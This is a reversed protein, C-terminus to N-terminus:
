AASAQDTKRRRMVGFGILATGLLAMATPEPVPNAINITDNISGGSALHIVFEATESFPGSLLPSAAIVSTSSPASTFTTSALPSGTWLQNTASVFTHEDVSQVAGTFLNSTFGSVLNSIGSLSTLGQETIYIYLTQPTTATSAVNISATELTPENLPPTGTASIINSDFTGFPGVFVAGGNGSAVNVISGLGTTQSLGISVLDAHAATTLGMTALAMAGSLLLNKIHM